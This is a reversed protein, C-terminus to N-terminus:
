RNWGKGGGGSSGSPSTMREQMQVADRSAQELDKFRRKQDEYEGKQIRGAKYANELDVPTRFRLTKRVDELEMKAGGHIMSQYRPLIERMVTIPDEKGDFLSSRARLEALALRYANQSKPDIAELPSRTRLGERIEQEAQAHRRVVESEGQERLTNQTQRLRDKLAIGDKLNIGRQGGTVRHLEVMDDIDRMSTRPRLGHVDLAVTDYLPRESPADKKEGTIIKFLHEYQKGDIDRRRQYEDLTKLTVSGALADRQLDSYVRDKVENHLDELAKDRKEQLRIEEKQIREVDVRAQTVLRERATPDMRSYINSRGETVDRLFGDPDTDKHRLAREYTVDQWFKRARENAKAEGLVTRANGITEAGENVHHWFQEDNGIPADAAMQKRRDLTYELDANARDMFLADSRQRGAVVAKGTIGPLKTKLAQSTEPFRVRQHAETTIRDLGENWRRLHEDPDLTTAKLDADLLGIGMEVDALIAATDGDARAKRKAEEVRLRYREARAVNESINVAATGIGALGRAAAAAGAGASGVDMYPAGTGAPLEARPSFRPLRPM